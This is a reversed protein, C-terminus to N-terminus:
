RQISTEFTDRIKNGIGSEHTTVKGSGAAISLARM